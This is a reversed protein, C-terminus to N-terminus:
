HWKASVIDTGEQNPYGVSIHKHPLKVNQTILITLELKSM